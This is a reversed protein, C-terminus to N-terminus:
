RDTEPASPAAPVLQNLLAVVRREFDRPAVRGKTLFETPGLMLRAREDADLDRASYVVLRAHRLQNHRRLSDVVWFGDGEPLALDLVIMDPPHQIGLAVAERGTAAHVTEIGHRGFIEALVGALGEDDEVLLVRGHKARDSVAAELQRLLDDDGFPKSVWGVAESAAAAADGPELASLIIVPIAATEPMGKLAGLTEWGDMGPMVVDLLIADPRRIRALELATEGDAAAVVRYGWGHLIRTVVARVTADDDVVMVLAGRADDAAAPAEDAEAPQASPISFRFTSGEGAVSEAWIRGGHQQVISRCIALGLGTGGKQRSDSSDVQQFREFVTDLKDAPIGRGHDRVGFLVQGDRAEASLSVESGAPSFKVANSLLNTLVQLIRDPDARVAAAVAEVRLVVGAKEAMAEMVDAADRVLSAAEVTRMEMTAKGSEMREIDLIDNILRVLRDTNQVAIELLRQVRESMEGMKGGALLGLSGRISTLPTRLEHSVVSIFEDKMREVELRETIDRFTVVAGAIRGEELLPASVLEVPFRSGDARRLSCRGLRRTAGTRLTERVASHGRADGDCPEELQLVTELPRGVLDAADRGLMAAAAPNLFSTYGDVDVGYIGEGASSLILENQRGLREAARQALKREGVEGALERNAEAVRRTRRTLMLALGAALAIGFAGGGLILAETSRKLEDARAARRLLLASEGEGIRGIVARMSDMLVARERIRAVGGARAQADPVGGAGGAVPRPVGQMAEWRVEMARLTELRRQQVPNDRTLAVARGLSSRFQERGHVWADLQDADGTLAFGRFATETTALAEEMADNAALVAYTHLSWRNAEALRRFNAYGVVVLGVLVALLVAFGAVYRGAYPTSPRTRQPLIPL